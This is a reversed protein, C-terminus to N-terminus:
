EVAKTRRGGGVVGLVAVTLGVAGGEVGFFFSDRKRESEASLSREVFVRAM